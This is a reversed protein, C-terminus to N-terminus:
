GAQVRRAEFTKQALNFLRSSVVPEHAGKRGDKLRGTYVRNTAIGRVAIDSWRKGGGPAPIGAGTLARAVMGPSIGRAIDQFIRRVVAAPAYPDDLPGAVVLEAKVSVYGYPVRGVAHGGKAAKQERADRLRRVLQRRELSAIAHMQERLFQVLEGDGNVGEAYLVDCGAQRFEREITLAELTERALRSFTSCVLAKAEGAKVAQLAATLGPRQELPTTGSVGMDAYEGVLELGSRRAFDRISQRQVDPGYKEAQEDSSVRIYSIAPLGSNDRASGSQNDTRKTM